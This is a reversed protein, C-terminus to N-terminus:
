YKDELNDEIWNKTLDKFFIAKQEFNLYVAFDKITLQKRVFEGTPIVEGEWRENM